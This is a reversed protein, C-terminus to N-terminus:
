WKPVDLENLYGTLANEGEVVRDLIERISVRDWDPMARTPEPEAENMLRMNEAEKIAEYAEAVSSRPRHFGKAGLHKDKVASWVESAIPENWYFSNNYAAVITRRAAVLEDDLYVLDARLVDEGLRAASAELGSM